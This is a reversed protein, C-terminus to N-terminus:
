AKLEDLKRKMEPSILDYLKSTLPGEQKLREKMKPKIEANNGRAAKRANRYRSYPKVKRKKREEWLEELNDM